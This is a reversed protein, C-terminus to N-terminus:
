FNNWVFDFWYDSTDSGNTGHTTLALGAPTSYMVNNTGDWMQTYLKPPNTNDGMLIMMDDAGSEPIIRVSELVSTIISISTPSADWTSTGTNYKKYKPTSTNDSYVNIAPDGSSGEYDFDYTLQTPAAATATTIIDNTPNSWTATTGSFTAKQCTINNPAKNDISCVQFEDATPRSSISLMEIANAQNAAGAEAGWTGGGSGNAQFLKIRASKDGGGTIYTLAGITPTHLSWTFGIDDYPNNFDNTAHTTVASWTSGNYYETNAAKAQDLIAAMIENSGPRTAIVMFTPIHTGGGLSTLASETSWTTGDWTRMKPIATNDSYVVMFNGNALYTGDFNQVDLFNKNSWSSLLQVNGWNTGNYVQAYIYQSTGNYHRSVMIKETRTASNYVRVVRLAKNTTGTDIDAAASATSWTTGDFTQYKIADTTTGGDGYVLMGGRGVNKRFNTLYVNFAINKSNWNVTSTVQKTNPDLTGGSTVITGSGNRYVDAVTIQRTYNGKINNLGSFAWVGSGTALGYNGDIMNAWSQNKISRAAEIGEQAYLTADTENDGLNALTFTQIIAPVVGIAIVVFIAIAILLEVISFGGNLKKM